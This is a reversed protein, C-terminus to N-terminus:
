QLINNIHTETYDSNSVKTSPFQGSGDPRYIIRLAGNGGNSHGLSARSFGGGGGGYKGATSYGGMGIPYEYHGNDTNIAEIGSSGSKGASATFGGNWAGNGGSGNTGQGYIGVGGGPATNGYGDFVAGGGGGGGQGNYGGGNWTNNGKGGDGMYGGAGGGGGCWDSYGGGGEGGNGGNGGGYDTHGIINNTYNGGGGGPENTSNDSSIGGKGGHAILLNNFYTDGGDQGNTTGNTSGQGGIGVVITYVTGSVVTINNAWILGGGGGGTSNMSNTNGGGGGGGVAVLSINTIGDPCTWQYTGAINYIWQTNVGILKCSNISKSGYTNTTENISCPKATIQGIEDVYYGIDAPSCTINGLSNSYTGLECPKATTQGTLDIYYGKEAPTCSKSGLTNSYTGAQCEIQGSRDEKLKYGAEVQTCTVGDSYHGIPCDECTKDSITTGNNLLKKGYDCKTKYPKQTTQGTLDIYYGKEAPTCSKSSFTNSYTGLECPKEISQGYKNVYYGPKSLKCNNANEINSYTGPYCPNCNIIGTKKDISKLYGLKPCNNNYKKCKYSDGMNYEDIDCDLCTNSNDKIGKDPPCTKNCKYLELNNFNLGHNKQKLKDFFQNKNLEDPHAKNFDNLTGDWNDACKFYVEGDNKFTRNDSKYDVKIYGNTTNNNLFNKNNTMIFSSDCIKNTDIKTPNICVFTEKFNINILILFILILLLLLVLILYKLNM